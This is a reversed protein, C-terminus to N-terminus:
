KETNWVSLVEREMVALADMMERKREPESWGFLDCFQLAVAYDLGIAGAMSVRWQTQLRLFMLFYDWNERWVEFHDEEIDALLQARDEDSLEFV